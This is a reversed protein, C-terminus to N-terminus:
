FVAHTLTYNEPNQRSEQREARTGCLRHVVVSRRRQVTDQRMHAFAMGSLEVIGFTREAPGVSLKAITQLPHCRTLRMTHNSASARVPRTSPGSESIRPPGTNRSSRGRSKESSSRRKLRPSLRQGRTFIAGATVASLFKMRRKSTSPSRSRCRRRLFAACAVGPIGDIGRAVAFLAMEEAVGFGIVRRDQIKAQRLEVAHAHQLFPALVAAGHGHQDERRPITPAILNRTEVGARVIIQRFWEVRFFQQRTQTRQQAPGSAKRRRLDFDSREVDVGAGAAHRHVAIRHLQCAELVAQEGIERMMAALDDRAGLQHLM